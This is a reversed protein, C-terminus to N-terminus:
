GGLEPYEAIGEFFDPYPSGTEAFVASKMTAYGRGTLGHMMDEWLKIRQKLEKILASLAFSERGTEAVSLDGLKVNRDQGSSTAVMKNMAMDYSVKYRVYQKMYFPFAGDIFIDNDYRPSSTVILYAAESAMLIQEYISIDSMDSLFGALEGRVEDVTAYVREGETVFEIDIDSGLTKAEGDLTIINGDIMMEQVGSEEGSLAGDVRLIYRKGSELPETLTVVLVHPKGQQQEVTMAVLEDDFFPNADKKRLSVLANFDQTALPESFLIGMRLGKFGFGGNEPYSSVLTLSEMSVDTQGESPSTPEPEEIALMTSTWSSRVGEKIARVHVYYSGPELRKPFDMSKTTTTAFEQEPWIGDNEPLNSTSLKVEFAYGTSLSPNEWTARIFGDTETLTLSAPALVSESERTYFTYTRSTGLYDDVISKIGSTGGVIELSYSTGPELGGTPSVTLRKEMNNYAFTSPVLDGNVKRLRVTSTTLSSELMNKQFLIVVSQDLSVNREGTAPAVGMVLYNNIPM